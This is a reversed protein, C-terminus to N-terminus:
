RVPAASATATLWDAQPKRALFALWAYSSANVLADARSLQLALLGYARDGNVLAHGIEGAGLPGCFHACEHITADVLFEDTKDQLSKEVYVIGDSTKKYAWHGPHTYALARLDDAPAPGAYLYEKGARIENFFLQMQTFVNRISVVDLVMQPNTRGSANLKFVRNVLALAAADNATPTTANLARLAAELVRDAAARWTEATPILGYVRWMLPSVWLDPPYVPTPINLELPVNSWRVLVARYYGDDDGAPAQFSAADTDGKYQRVKVTIGAYQQKIFAETAAVRLKSLQLNAAANGKRSSYGTIDIWADPHKKMAPAFHQTIWDKHSGVLESYGSKFHCLRAGTIRIGEQFPLV